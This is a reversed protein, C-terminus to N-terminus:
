DKINFFDDLVDELEEGIQTARAKADINRRQYWYKDDTYVVIERDDSMLTRVEEEIMNGVHQDTHRNLIVGVVIRDDTSVVQARNVERLNMLHESIMETEENSYQDTIPNDRDDEFSERRQKSQEYYSDFNIPGIDTAEKNEYTILETKSDNDMSENSTLQNCGTIIFLSGTLIFLIRVM